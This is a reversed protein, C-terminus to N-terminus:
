DKVVQTMAEALEFRALIEEAMDNASETELVVVTHGASFPNFLVEEGEWHRSKVVYDEHYNSLRKILTGVTM